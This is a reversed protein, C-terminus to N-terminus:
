IVGAPGKGRIMVRDLFGAYREIVVPWAYHGEVYARGVSVL